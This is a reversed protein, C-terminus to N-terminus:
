GGVLTAVATAIAGLVVAIAGAWATITIRRARALAVRREIILTERDLVGTTESEEADVLSPYERRANARITHNLMMSVAGRLGTGARGAIPDPNTGISATLELIAQEVDADRRETRAIHDELRASQARALDRLEVLVDRTARTTVRLEVLEAAHVACPPGSDHGNGRPAPAPDTDHVVDEVRTM